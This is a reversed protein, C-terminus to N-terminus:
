HIGLFKHKKKLILFNREQFNNKEDFVIESIIDFFQSLFDIECYSLKFKNLDILWYNGKLLELVREM